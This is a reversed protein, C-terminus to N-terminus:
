TATAGLFMESHRKARVAEPGAEGGGLSLDIAFVHEARRADQCVGWLDRQLMIITGVGKLRAATMLSVDVGRLVSRRAHEHWSRHVTMFLLLGHAGEAVQRAPMLPRLASCQTLM